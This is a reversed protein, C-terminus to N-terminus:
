GTTTPDCLVAHAIVTVMVRTLTSERINRRAAKEASEMCQSQGIHAMTCTGRVSGHRLCRTFEFKREVNDFARQEELSNKAHLIQQARHAALVSPRKKWPFLAHLFPFGFVTILMKSKPSGNYIFCAGRKEVCAQCFLLNEVSCVSM